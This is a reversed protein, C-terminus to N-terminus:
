DGGDLLLAPDVRAGNMSVSWHLHPGTSRGSSGVAGIPDGVALEQGPRIVVTDLHCYMTIVGEGHDMLVTKGNFYYDGVQVVRGRAPAIM